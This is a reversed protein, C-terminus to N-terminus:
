LPQGDITLRYDAHSAVWEDWTLALTKPYETLQEGPDLIAYHRLIVTADPTAVAGLIHASWIRPRDGDPPWLHPHQEDM